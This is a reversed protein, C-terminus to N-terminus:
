NYNCSWGSFPQVSRELQRLFCVTPLSNPLPSQIRHVVIGSATGPRRNWTIRTKLSSSWTGTTMEEQRQSRCKGCSCCCGLPWCDLEQILFILVFCKFGDYLISTTCLHLLIACCWIVKVKMWFMKFRTDHVM